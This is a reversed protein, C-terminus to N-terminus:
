GGMLVLNVFLQELFTFLLKSFYRLLFDGIGVSNM